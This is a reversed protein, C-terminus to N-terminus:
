NGQAGQLLHARHHSPRRGPFVPPYKTFLRRVWGHAAAFSGEPGIIRSPPAPYPKLDLTNDPREEMWRRYTRVTVGM